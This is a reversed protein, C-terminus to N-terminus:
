EEDDAQACALWQDRAHKYVARVAVELQDATLVGYRRMAAKTGFHAYAHARAERLTGPWGGRTRRNDERLDRQVRAVWASGVRLLDAEPIL